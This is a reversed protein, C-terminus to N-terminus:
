AVLGTPLTPDECAIPKLMEVGKRFTVTIATAKIAIIALTLTPKSSIKLLCRFVALKLLYVKEWLYTTM